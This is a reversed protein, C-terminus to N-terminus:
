ALQLGIDFTARYAQGDPVLPLLLQDGGNRFFNDQANRASRPGKSAYPARALVRDTIADDFYLQSTFEHAGGAARPTRIKFHVHVTRGQYWGPYITTFRVAGNNDTVQYGRLFKRGVTNFGVTTDRVDSYIGLADCQWLDVMAGALPRCNGGDVRTVEFTLDLRVGDKVSGDAPDSRIDARNLKEDVFYPGEIQQPRVVCAPMVGARAPRPNGLVAAGGLMSAGALGALALVERRTLVRGVQIDDQEMQLEAPRCSPFRHARLCLTGNARLGTLELDKGTKCENFLKPAGGPTSLIVSGLTLEDDV